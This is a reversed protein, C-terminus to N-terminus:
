KVSLDDRNRQHDGSCSSNQQHVVSPTESIPPITRIVMVYPKGYGDLITRIVMVYPESLPESLWGIVMRYPKKFWRIHNWYGDLINGIDDYFDRGLPVGIEQANHARVPYVLGGVHRVGADAM